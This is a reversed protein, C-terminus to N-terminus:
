CSLQMFIPMCKSFQEAYHSTETLILLALEMFILKFITVMDMSGRLSTQFGTDGMFNEKRGVYNTMYVWNFELITGEEQKNDVDILADIEGDNNDNGSDM